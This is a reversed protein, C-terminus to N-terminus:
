NVPCGPGFMVVDGGQPLQWGVALNGDAYTGLTFHTDNLVSTAPIRLTWDDGSHTLTAPPETPLDAPSAHRTDLTTPPESDESAGSGDGDSTRPAACEDAGSHYDVDADVGQDRLAQELGAADSLQHITVVVDGDAETQVAFAPAPGSFGGAVVAVAAAVSAALGAAVRSFRRRRPGGFRAQQSRPAAPHDPQQACSGTPDADAHERLGRLLASEAAHEHLARLLATEFSDLRQTM